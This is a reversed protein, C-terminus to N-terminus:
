HGSLERTPLEPMKSPGKAYPTMVSPSTLIWVEYCYLHHTRIRTKKEIYPIKAKSIKKIKSKDFL